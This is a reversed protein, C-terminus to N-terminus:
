LAENWQSVIALVRHIDHRVAAERADLDDPDFTTQRETAIDQLELRSMCLLEQAYRQCQRKDDEADYLTALVRRAETALPHDAGCEEDDVLVTNDALLCVRCKGIRTCAVLRRPHM